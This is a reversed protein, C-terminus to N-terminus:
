WSASVFSLGPVYHIEVYTGALPRVRVANRTKIATMQPAALPMLMIMIETVVRLVM